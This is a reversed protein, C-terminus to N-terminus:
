PSNLSQSIQEMPEDDDYEFDSSDTSCSDEDCAIFSQIKQRLYKLTIKEAIM